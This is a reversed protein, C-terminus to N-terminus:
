EIITDIDNKVIESESQYSPSGCLKDFEPEQEFGMKLMKDVLKHWTMEGRYEFEGNGVISMKGTVDLKNIKEYIEKEISLNEDNLNDKKAIKITFFGKTLYDIVADEKL